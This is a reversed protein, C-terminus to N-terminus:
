SRIAYWLGMIVQLYGLITEPANVAFMAALPGAFVCSHYKDQIPNSHIAVMQTLDAGVSPALLWPVTEPKIAQKGQVKAYTVWSQGRLLKGKVMGVTHAPRVSTTYRGAHWAM